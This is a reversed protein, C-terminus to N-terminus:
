TATTTSTSSTTRTSATAATSTRTPTSTGCRSSSARSSGRPRTPRSSPTSVRRSRHRPRRVGQHLRAPGDPLRQPRPRHHLRRRPRGRARHGRGPAQPATGQPLGRRRKSPRPRQRRRRRRPRRHGHPERRAGQPQHVRRALHRALLQRAPDARQDLRHPRHPRLAPHDAGPELPHRLQRPLRLGPPEPGRQHVDTGILVDIERPRRRCPSTASSRARALVADPGAPLRLGTGLTTKAAHAGARSSRARWARRASPPALERYLYNATDAFASFILM